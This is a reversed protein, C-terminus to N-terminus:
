DTLPPGHRSKLILCTFIDVGRAATHERGVIQVTTVKTNM